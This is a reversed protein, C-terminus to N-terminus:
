SSFLVGAVLEALGEAPDSSMQKQHRRRRMGALLFVELEEEGQEVGVSEFAPEAVAQVRGLGDIQHPPHDLFLREGDVAARKEGLAPCVGDGVRQRVFFPVEILRDGFVDALFHAAGVFQFGIALSPTAVGDAERQGNQLAAEGGAGLRDPTAPVAGCAAQVTGSLSSRRARKPLFRFRSAPRSRLGAPSDFSVVERGTNVFVEIIQCTLFAFLDLFVDRVRGGRGAGRSLEVGLDRDEGIQFFEGLSDAM